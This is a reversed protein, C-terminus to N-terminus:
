QHVKFDVGAFIGRNIDIFEVVNGDPDNVYLTGIGYSLSNQPNNVYNPELSALSLQYPKQGASLLMALVQSLDKVQLAFHTAPDVPIGGKHAITAPMLHVAYTDGASLWNGKQPCKKMGASCLYCPFANTIM